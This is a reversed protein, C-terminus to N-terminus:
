RKNGRKDFLLYDAHNRRLSRTTTWRGSERKNLRAAIFWEFPEGLVEIAWLPMWQPAHNHVFGQCKILLHRSTVRWCEACGSQFESKLQRETQGMGKFRVAEASNAGNPHFPPDFVVTPVAANAFPLNQFDAVCDKARDQTLDLGIVNRHSGKWFTGNGFTVDVYPAAAAVLNLLGDVAEASGCYSVSRM